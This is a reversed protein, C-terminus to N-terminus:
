DLVSSYCKVVLNKILSRSIGCLKEFSFMEKFPFFESVRFGIDNAQKVAM